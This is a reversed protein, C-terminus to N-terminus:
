TVERHWEYKRPQEPFLMPPVGPEDHHTGHKDIEIMEQGIRNEIGSSAADPKVRQV